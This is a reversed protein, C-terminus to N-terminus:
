FFNPQLGHRELFAAVRAAEDRDAEEPDTVDNLTDLYAGYEAMDDATPEYTETANM